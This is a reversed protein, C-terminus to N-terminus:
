VESNDVEKKYQAIAKTFMDTIADFKKNYKREDLVGDFSEIKYKNVLECELEYMHKAVLMEVKSRLNQKAM